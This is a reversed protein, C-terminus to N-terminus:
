KKYVIKSDDEYIINLKDNLPKLFEEYGGEKLIYFLSVNNDLMYNIEEQPDSPIHDYYNIGLRYGNRESANIISPDLKNVAILDKEQTNAKIFDGHEEISPIDVLFNELTYVSAPLMSALIFISLVLGYPLKISDILYAILLGIIPLIFVLYYNFKIISVIILCELLMSSTLVILFSNKKIISKAFGALAMLIPIIGIVSPLSQKYFDLTEKSFITKITNSFIHKSAIGSVFSATSIKGMYFFYLAPLALSLIGYLYFLPSKFSKIGYKKFFIFLILIGSFAIPIKQSIALGMFIASIVINFDKDTQYWEYAHFMSGMFFFLALTEPMISRSYQMSLPMLFYVIIGVISPLFSAFKRELKYLYIASGLFFAYSIARYIFSGESSFIRQFCAGLYTLIQLELQVINPEPGDYFFQPKLINFDRNLFNRAISYTDGERWSNFAEYPSNKFSPLLIMTYAIFIALIILVKKNKLKEKM